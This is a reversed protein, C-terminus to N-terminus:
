HRGRRPRLRTATSRRPAGNSGDGAAPAARLWGSSTGRTVPGFRPHFHRCRVFLGSGARHDLGWFLGGLGRLDLRLEPEDVDGGATGLLQHQAGPRLDLRLVRLVRADGEVLHGAAVHLPLETLAGDFARDLALELRAGVGKLFDELGVFSVLLKLVSAGKAYTIGDFNQEVKELDSMDAAIPHTTSLQDQLYAWAKRENSFSAWPNAGTDYKKAIEDGAFHSAWEAFSENLWLDDWWTMTVLDGFWMHAMEHLVTECRREYHYRTVKSRFVYEERFTVAGANEMAGANFEPVFIQDYKAFPNPLEFANEYFTFGRQTIDLIEEADLHEALSARCLVKAPIARGDTSTITGEGGTYPGAIIATVYCPLVDTPEFSWTAVHERAAVPEPTPANSIVTWHSPATVTFRFTAKLDPQEFVPYVRRSDPVEFQSYLYVEGDAPDVFRHLGEGTNTYLADADVVLEHGEHVAVHAHRDHDAAEVVPDVTWGEGAVAPIGLDDQGPGAM